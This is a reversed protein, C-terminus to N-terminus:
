EPIPEGSLHFINFNVRDTMGRRNEIPQNALRKNYLSRKLAGKAAKVFLNNSASVAEINIPKGDDDLDFQLIVHGSHNANRPLSPKAHKVKVVKNKYEDFPSVDSLGAAEAQILLGEEVIAYRTRAWQKISKEMLWEDADLKGSLAEIVKQYELVAPILDGTKELSDGKFYHAFYVYATPMNDPRNKFIELARNAHKLSKEPTNKLYFYRAKITELEAEFTSGQLEYKDIAKEVAKFKHWTPVPVPDSKEINILSLAHYALFIRRELEIHEPDEIYFKALEISRKIAKERRKYLSFGGGNTEEYAYNNALDGTIKHDGLLEEAKQWAKYSKIRATETDQAIKATRFEQYLAMVEPPTQAYASTTLLFLILLSLFRM